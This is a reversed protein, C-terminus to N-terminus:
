GWWSALLWKPQQGQFKTLGLVDTAWALREDANDPVDLNPIEVPFGRANEYHEAALIWMTCQESCHMVFEVGIEELAAGKREDWAQWAERDTGWDPEPETFGHAALLVVNWAEYDDSETWAPRPSEDDWDFGFDEGLDFGYALIGDTSTGM